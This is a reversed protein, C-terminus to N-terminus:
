SRRLHGAKGEAKFKAKLEETAMAVEPQQAIAADRYAQCIFGSYFNVQVVGGNQAAPNAM